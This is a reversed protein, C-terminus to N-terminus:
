LSCVIIDHIETYFDHVRIQIINLAFDSLGVHKTNDGMFIELQVKTTTTVLRVCYMTNLTLFWPM